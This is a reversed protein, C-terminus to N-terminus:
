AHRAMEVLGTEAWGALLTTPHMAPTTDSV